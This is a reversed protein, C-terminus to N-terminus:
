CVPHTRSQSMLGEWESWEFDLFYVTIWHVFVGNIGAAVFEGM